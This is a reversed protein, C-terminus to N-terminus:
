TGKAEVRQFRYENRFAFPKGTERTEKLITFETDKVVITKRVEVKKDNELGTGTLILEGRGKEAFKALGTLTYESKSKGDDSEWVLSKMAPDVRVTDTEEVFRGRGEDYRFKLVVALGDTNPKARLLTPLTM